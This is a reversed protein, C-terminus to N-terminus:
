EIDMSLRNDAPLNICYHICNNNCRETLEVDQGALLFSSEERPLSDDSRVIRVYKKM